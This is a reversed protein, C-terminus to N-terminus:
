LIYTGNKEYGFRIRLNSAFKVCIQRLNSAFKVGPTAATATAPSCSRGSSAGRRRRPRRGPSSKILSEITASFTKTCM